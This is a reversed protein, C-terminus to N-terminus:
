HMIVKKGFGIGRLNPLAKSVNADFVWLQTATDGVPGSSVPTRLVYYGSLLPCNWPRPLPGTVNAGDIAFTELLPWNTFYNTPITGTLSTESLELHALKTFSGIFAPLTGTLQGSLRCLFANFTTHQTVNPAFLCVEGVEVADFTSTV